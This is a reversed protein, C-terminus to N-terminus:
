VDRLSSNINVLSSSLSGDLLDITVSSFVISYTLRRQLKTNIHLVYKHHNNRIWPIASLAGVIVAVNTTTGTVLILDPNVKYHRFNNM